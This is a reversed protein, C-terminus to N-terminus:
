QTQGPLHLTHSIGRQSKKFVSTDTDVPSYPKDDAPPSESQIVSQQENFNNQKKEVKTTDTRKPGPKSDTKFAKVPTVIILTRYAEITKHKKGITELQGTTRNLLDVTGYGSQGILHFLEEARYDELRVCGHSAAAKGMDAMAPRDLSSHLSIGGNFFVAWLMPADYPGSWHRSSFGQPIFYGSPTEHGKAGTSILWYYILGKNRQYVRMTQARGWFPDNQKNVIVIIQYSTFLSNNLPNSLNEAESRDPDQYPPFAKTVGFKFNKDAAPDKDYRATPYSRPFDDWPEAKVINSDLIHASLLLMVLLRALKPRNPGASKRRASLNM